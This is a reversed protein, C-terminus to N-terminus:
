EVFGIEQTPATKHECDVILECLSDLTEFKSGHLKNEFVGKLYSEFLERANKLNQEANAKARAISDSAEDLIAVIRQQEPIPPILIPEESYEKFYIHPITSGNKYRLFDVSSLFYYLYKLDIGKKPMLYQLTGIVSSYAELLSIRGIGAGDKVISIYDKDRHYFSIKKIFGGAGYISFEGIEEVLQNQSINSSAKECVEGLKKIEWGQKM